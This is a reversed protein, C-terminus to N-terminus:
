EKEALVLHQFAFFGPLARAITLRFKSVAKFLFNDWIAKPLLFEVPEISSDFIYHKLLPEGRLMQRVRKHTFFQYHTRDMIGRDHYDFIGFFLLGRVSWHAVNPLSILIKGGPSLMSVMKGFYEFPATMHELVDLLLILDFKQGSFASVDPATKKYINKVHERAESDIEVAYLEAIGQEKLVQGIAGSGSGIDLVRTSAPLEACQRMAWWHSSGYFPKYQYRIHPASM